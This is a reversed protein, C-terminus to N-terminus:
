QNSNVSAITQWLGQYDLVFGNPNVKLDARFENGADGSKYRYKNEDLRTYQQTLPELRFSPFRLWAAKILESEGVALGLRRIPLLNTSPSFNLDLDTCGQAEPCDGGNLRWHAGSGVEIQIDISNNGVWGHVRASRTSWATDCMIQYDLRCPQLDSIFVAAGSLQWNSDLSSLRCSEYGSFVNSQWLITEIVM